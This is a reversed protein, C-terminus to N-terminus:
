NKYTFRKTKWMADSTLIMDIESSGKIWIWQWVIKKLLFSDAM